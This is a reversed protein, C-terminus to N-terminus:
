KRQTLMKGTSREVIMWERDGKLGTPTAIATKVSIGKCSKIPYIYLAHIVSTQNPM